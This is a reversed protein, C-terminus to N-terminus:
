FRKFISVINHGGFGFTNNMAINVERRQAKGLTLNLTQPIEPDVQTTNITPPVVSENIAKICLIAEIVGAAGLLHGTMSKSAGINLRKANEGFVNCIAKIESVDGLPTSTAHANLYDIETTSIGADQLAFKMANIAGEGEPHSATMHYADSTMAGGIVEAYIKAGRNQAHELEELILAGAGEGMVFGDRSIDFPRCATSAEDNNTSLAMAANFGGIGSETIAAESGGAIIINARGCRIQDLANCISVNSSACAAAPTYNVGKLGYKISINGSAMNIIIKPIFFPSFKPDRGRVGYDILEEQTSYAGGYASAWIVGARTLDIAALDLGSDKIAEDAAVLAYQSYQDLKRLDKRDFFDYPDFDKLECAFRTKFKSADFNTIAAAGSTGEIANRWFEPVSNGIPTLAGLGTVVVRRM